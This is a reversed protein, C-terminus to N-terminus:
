VSEGWWERNVAEHLSSGEVSTHRLCSCSLLTCVYNSTAVYNMPEVKIKNGDKLISIATRLEKAMEIQTETFTRHVYGRLYRLVAIDSKLQNELISIPYKMM